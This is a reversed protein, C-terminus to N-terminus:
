SPICKYRCLNRCITACSSVILANFCVTCMSHLLRSEPPYHGVAQSAVLQVVKYEVFV